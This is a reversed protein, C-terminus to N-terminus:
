FKSKSRVRQPLNEVTNPNFIMQSYISQAEQFKIPDNFITTNGDPDTFKWETVRTEVIKVEGDSDM